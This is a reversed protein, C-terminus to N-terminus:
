FANLNMTLNSCGGVLIAFLYQMLFLLCPFNILFVKLGFRLIIVLRLFISVFKVSYLSLSYTINKAVMKEMTSLTFPFILKVLLINIGTLMKVGLVHCM